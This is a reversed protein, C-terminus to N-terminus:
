TFLAETVPGECDSGSGADYQLGGVGVGVLVGTVGAGVAVAVAVLVGTVGTAVAVAVAVGIGPGVGVGAGTGIGSGTVTTSKPVPRAASDAASAARLRLLLYASKDTKPLLAKESPTTFVVGDKNQHAIAYGSNRRWQTAFAYGNRPANM